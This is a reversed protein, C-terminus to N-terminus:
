RGALDYDTDSDRNMDKAPRAKPIAEAFWRGVGAAVELQIDGWRKADITGRIDRALYPLLESNALPFDILSVKPLVADRKRALNERSLHESWLAVPSAGRRVLDALDYVDRPVSRNASLLANVKGAAMAAESYVRVVFPALTYEYPPQIPRTEIFRADPVGRRSLEVEWTVAVGDRTRGILRWRSARVGSKTRDIKQEVIGAARAAQEMAAPIRTALSRDSVSDECDFDVDKTLRASGYLARMAMGGKLIYRDAGQRMLSSLFAM